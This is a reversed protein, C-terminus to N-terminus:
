KKCYWARAVLRKQRDHWYGYESTSYDEPSRVITDATKLESPVQRSDLYEPPTRPEPKEKPELEECGTLITVAVVAMFIFDKGLKKVGEQVILYNYL